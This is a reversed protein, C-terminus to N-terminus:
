PLTSSAQPFPALLAAGADRLSVWTISFPNLAPLIRLTVTPSSPDGDIRVVSGVPLAGPGPVFVTDGVAIGAARPLSATMAGSGAGSIALPVNAHGVWGNTVMGPTSFLVVRSFDPLVTEVIGIPVGGDGYAEMGRMVGERAGAGLVLTDYPSEPPRAVVGALVGSPPTNKQAASGLLASLGAVKQLLIQNESALAANESKLRENVAALAATDSFYSTFVHTQAALADAGRFIPSFVRWFLNPAVFRVLLVVLAVALAYAGWSVDTSSFLANRRASFIRKM